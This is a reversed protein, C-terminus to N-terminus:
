RTLREPVSLNLQDGENLALALNKLVPHIVYFTQGAAENQESVEPLVGSQGFDTLVDVLMDARIASDYTYDIDIGRPPPPYSKRKIIPGTDISPALLIASVACGGDQLMSYYITTSGRYDPLWGSHMHMWRWRTCLDGPVIEGGYGSYIILRPSLDDIFQRVADDGVSRTDILEATGCIAKCTAELRINFDPAFVSLERTATIEATTQGPRGSGAQGIIGVTEPHLGANAM